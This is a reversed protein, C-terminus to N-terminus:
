TQGSAVRTNLTSAWHSGEGIVVASTEILHGTLLAADLTTGAWRVSTEQRRAWMKSSEMPECLRTGGRGVRFVLRVVGDRNLTTGRPPVIEVVYSASHRALRHTTREATALSVHEETQSWSPALRAPRALGLALRALTPISLAWLAPIANVSVMSLPTTHALVVNSADMRDQSLVPPVDLAHLPAPPGLSVRLLLALPVILAFTQRLPLTLIRFALLVDLDGVIAWLVRLVLPSVTLVM